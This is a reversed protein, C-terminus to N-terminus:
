ADVVEGEVVDTGQAASRAAAQVAAAEAWGAVLDLVARLGERWGGMREVAGRVVQPWTAPDAEIAAIEDDGAVLEVLDRARMGASRVAEILRLRADPPWGSWDPGAGGTRHGRQRSPQQPPDKPKPPAPPAAEARPPQQEQQMPVDEIEEAPTPQYGGLVVVWSFVTRLAKAGARTQAMSRLAYAPQDRWRPEDRTCQAEAAALVQGQRVVVARAEYGGELPRSWETRVTCGYMTAVTCWAEYRLYRRGQIHVVHAGGAADIARSLARAVASASALVQEPDAVVAMPQDAVLPAGPGDVPVIDTTM